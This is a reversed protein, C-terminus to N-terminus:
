EAPAQSAETNPSITEITPASATVTSEVTDKLKALDDLGVMDLLDDFSMLPPNDIGAIKAYRAGADMFMHLLKFVEEIDDSKDLREFVKAVGGMEQLKTLTRASMCTLYTKGAIEITGTKM